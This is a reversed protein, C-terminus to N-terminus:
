MLLKADYEENVITINTEITILKGLKKIQM